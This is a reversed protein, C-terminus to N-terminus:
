IVYQVSRYCLIIYMINDNLEINLIRGSEQNNKWEDYPIKKFGDPLCLFNEPAYTFKGPNYEKDNCVEPHRAKVGGSAITGDPFAYQPNNWGIRTFENSHSFYRM